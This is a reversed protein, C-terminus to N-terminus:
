LGGDAESENAATSDGSQVTCLVNKDINQFKVVPQYKPKIGSDNVQVSYAMFKV